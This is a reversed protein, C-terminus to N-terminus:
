GQKPGRLSCTSAISSYGAELTQENPVYHFVNQLPVNKNRIPGFGALARGTQTQKGRNPEQYVHGLDCDKRDPRGIVNM